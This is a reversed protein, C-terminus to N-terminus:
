PREYCIVKEGGKLVVVNIQIEVLCSHKCKISLNCHYSFVM